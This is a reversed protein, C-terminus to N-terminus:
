EEKVKTKDGTVQAIIAAYDYAAAQEFESLIDKLIICMVDNSINSAAKKQILYGKIENTILRIGIYSNNM